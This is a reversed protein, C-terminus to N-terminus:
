VLLFRVETVSAHDPLLEWSEPIPLAMAGAGALPRKPRVAASGASGGRGKYVILGFTPDPVADLAAVM